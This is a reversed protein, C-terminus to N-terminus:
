LAEVNVRNSWDVKFVLLDGRRELEGTLAVPTAVYQLVDENCANGEADTLMYSTFEGQADRTVFMPAIGGAICRIACSKHVKGEGPRMVGFFCKPDIIEGRLTLTGLSEVRYPPPKLDKTVQHVVATEDDLLEIVRRGEREILFGRLTMQTRHGTMVREGPGFKGISVPLYSEVGDVGDAGTVHLVPYPDIMMIGTIEIANGTDWIGDGYHQQQAAMFGAAALMGLPYGSMIVLVLPILVKPLPLYGVYFAKRPHNM